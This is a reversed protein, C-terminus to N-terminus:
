SFLTISTRQQEAFTHIDDEDEIAQPAYGGAESRIM